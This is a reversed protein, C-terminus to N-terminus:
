LIQVYYAVIKVMQQKKAIGKDGTSMCNCHIKKTSVFPPDPGGPGGGQIRRHSTNPISNYFITKNHIQGRDAVEPAHKRSDKKNHIQSRPGIRPHTSEVILLM